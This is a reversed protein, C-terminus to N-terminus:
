FERVCAVVDERLAASKLLVDLSEGELARAGTFIVVWVQENAGMQWFAGGERLFETVEYGDPYDRDIVFARYHTTGQPAEGHIEYQESSADSDGLVPMPSEVSLDEMWQTLEASLRSGVEQCAKLTRELLSMGKVPQAAEHAHQALLQDALRAAPRVAPAEERLLAATAADEVASWLRLVFSPQAAMAHVRQRAREAIHAWEAPLWPLLMEAEACFAEAESQAGIAAGAALLEEAEALVGELSEPRVEKLSGTLRETLSQWDFTQRLARLLSDPVGSLLAEAPTLADAVEPLHRLLRGYGVASALWWLAKTTTPREDIRRLNEVVAAALGNLNMDTEKQFYWRAHRRLKAESWGVAQKPPHPRFATVVWNQPRGLQIVIFISRPTLAYHRWGADMSKTWITKPSSMESSYTPGYTSEHHAVLLERVLRLQEGELRPLEQAIERTAGVLEEAKLRMAPVDADCLREWHEAPDYLHKWVKKPCDEPPIPGIPGLVPHKWVMM